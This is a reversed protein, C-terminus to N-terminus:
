DRLYTFCVIATVVIVTIAWGWNVLVVNALGIM